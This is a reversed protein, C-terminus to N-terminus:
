WEAECDQILVVGCGVLVFSGNGFSSATETIGVDFSHVDDEGRHRGSCRLENWLRLERHSYLCFGDM